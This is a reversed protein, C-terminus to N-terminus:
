RKAIDKSLTFSITWSVKDGSDGYAFSKVSFNSVYPSTTMNKELQVAAAKDELEVTLEVPKTFSEEDLSMQNTTTGDPFLDAFRLLATSYSLESNFIVKADDLQAKFVSAEGKVASYKAERKKNEAVTNLASIEVNTLYFYVIGVAFMLFITAVVLIVNYRLLVTNTRAASLTKKQDYPLLNIMEM